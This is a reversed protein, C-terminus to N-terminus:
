DGLLVIPPDFPVDGPPAHVPAQLRTEPLRTFPIPTQIGDPVPLITCPLMTPRVSDPVDLRAFPSIPTSTLSVEPLMTPPVVGPARLTSDPLLPAPTNM